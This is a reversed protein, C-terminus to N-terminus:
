GGGGDDGADQESDLKRGQWVRGGGGGWGGLSAAQRSSSWESDHGQRSECPPHPGIRSAHHKHHSLM